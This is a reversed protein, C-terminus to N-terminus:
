KLGWTYGHPSTKVRINKKHRVIYRDGIKQVGFTHGNDSIYYEINGNVPLPLLAVKSQAMLGMEQIADDLTDCFFGNGIVM